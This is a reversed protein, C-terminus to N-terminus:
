LKHPYDEKFEWNDYIELLVTCFKGDDICAQRANDRTSFDKITTASYAGFAKNPTFSHYKDNFHKGCLLFSFRDRGDENPGGTGNIDYNMDFCDGNNMSFMSGDALVARMYRETDPDHEVTVTKLYKALYKAYFKDAEARQKDEDIEGDETYQVGTYDWYLASGNEVESLQIAQNMMSYFKKVKVSAEKTKYNSILTPITMAAVIGIIGLTILVEALTFAAKKSFM